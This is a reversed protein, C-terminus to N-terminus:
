VTTAAGQEDAPNDGVVAAGLTTEHIEPVLIVGPQEPNKHVANPDGDPDHQDVKPTLYGM